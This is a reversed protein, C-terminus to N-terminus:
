FGPFCCQPSVGSERKRVVNLWVMQSRVCIPYCYSCYDQFFNLFFRQIYTHLWMVFCPDLMYQSKQFVQTICGYRYVSEGYKLFGSIDVSFVLSALSLKAAMLELIHVVIIIVLTKIHRHNVPACYDPSLIWCNGSSASSYWIVLTALLSLYGAPDSFSTLSVFDVILLLFFSLQSISFQVIFLVFGRWDLISM